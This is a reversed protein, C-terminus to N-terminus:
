KGLLSASLDALNRFIMILTSVGPFDVDIAFQVKLDRGFVYWLYTVFFYISQRIAMLTLYFAFVLYM